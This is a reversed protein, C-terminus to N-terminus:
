DSNLFLRIAEEIKLLNQDPPLTFVQIGTQELVDKAKPGVHYTIVWDIAERSLMAVSQIGVGHAAEVNDENSLWSIEEGDTNYIAYFLSRGFNEAVFEKDMTQIAIKM